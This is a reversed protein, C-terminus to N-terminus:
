ELTKAQLIGHASFGSPSCDMPDCLTLCSSAVLVKVQQQINPFIQFHEFRQFNHLFHSQVNMFICINFIDIYSCIYEFLKVERPYIDLLPITPGFPFYTNIRIFVHWDTKGPLASMPPSRDLDRFSRKHEQNRKDM